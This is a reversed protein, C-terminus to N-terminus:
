QRPGGHALALRVEATLAPNFNVAYPRLRRVDAVTMAGLQTQLFEALRDHRLDLKRLEPDGNAIAERVEAYLAPLTAARLARLRRADARAEALSRDVTELLVHSAYPWQECLTLWGILHDPRDLLRQLEEREVADAAQKRRGLILARVLRYVNVLRKLRRPNRDYYAHGALFAAQEAPTFAVTDVGYVEDRAAPAPPPAQDEPPPAAVDAPAQIAPAPEAVPTEPAAPGAVFEAEPPPAPEAPLPPFDKEDLRVLSGLYRRFDPTSPEPITFPIQVIKDLYEYGTIEAEALVKGYHEELAQTIIRADLALFVIFRRFDLLLKIAELVEVAKKPDCRDLDDIFVVVKMRPPLTDAFDQLDRRIRRMFGLDSQYDPAAFLDVIRQSAPTLFVDLVQRLFGVLVLLATSGGVVAAWDVQNTLAFGLALGGVVLAILTYPLLRRRLTRWERELNRRLNILVQGSWGLGEAEIASFIREVLGAWLRDAGTYDWAEYWVVLTDSSARQLGRQMTQALRGLWGPERAAPDVDPRLRQAIQRMLFSKGTGWAGYVGVVIPPATDRILQVFADVYSQFGLRDTGRLDDAMAELVETPQAGRAYRVPETILEVGLANLLPQLALCTATQATVNLIVGVANGTAADLLLAGADGAEAFGPAPISFQVAATDQDRIVLRDYQLRTHTYGTAGGFKLVRMGPQPEAVGAPPRGHPLLSTFPRPGALRALRFGAAAETTIEGIKDAPPRDAGPQFLETMASRAGLDPVLLLPQRDTKRRVLATLTGPTRPHLAVRLGPQLTAFRQAPGNAQGYAGLAAPDLPPAAAAPPTAGEPAQEGGAALAAEVQRTLDPDRGLVGQLDSQLKPDRAVADADLVGQRLVPQFQPQRAARESLARWAQTLNAAGAQVGALLATFLNGLSATVPEAPRAPRAPTKAPTRAAPGGKALSSPDPAVVTQERSTDQLTIEPFISAAVDMPAAYATSQRAVLGVIMGVTLGSQAEVVPAGSFGREVEDSRLQLVPFPIREVRTRGLIQGNAWRGTQRTEAFGFSRFERGDVGQSSGVRVPQSMDPPMAELELLALNEQDPDRWGVVRAVFARETVMGPFDVTIPAFTGASQYGGAAVVHACTLLHTRDVLFGTGVTRGDATLIRAVANEVPPNATTM